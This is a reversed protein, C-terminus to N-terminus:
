ECGPVQHLSWVPVKRHLRMPDKRAHLEKRHWGAPVDRGPPWETVGVAPVSRLRQILHHGGFKEASCLHSCIERVTLKKPFSKESKWLRHDENALDSTAQYYSPIALNPLKYPAFSIVLRASHVWSFYGDPVARPLLPLCKSLLAMGAFM